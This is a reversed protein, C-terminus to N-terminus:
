HPVLTPEAYGSPTPLPFPTQGKFRFDYQRSYVPRCQFNQTTVSFPAPLSVMQLSSIISSQNRPHLYQLPFILFVFFKITRTRTDNPAFHLVQIYFIGFSFTEPDKPSLDHNSTYKKNGSLPRMPNPRCTM